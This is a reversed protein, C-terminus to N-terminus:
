LMYLFFHRCVSETFADSNTVVNFFDGGDVAEMAIYSVRVLKGQDNEIMANQNCETYSIVNKHDFSLAKIASVEHDFLRKRRERTQPDSLDFVKVAKNDSTLYVKGCAGQGLEKVM